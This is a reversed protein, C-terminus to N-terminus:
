PPSLEFYLLKLEARFCQSVTHLLWALENPSIELDVEGKRERGERGKGDKGKRERGKGNKGKREREKGKKGKREREKREKGTREM